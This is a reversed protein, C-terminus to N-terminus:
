QAKQKATKLQCAALDRPVGLKAKVRNLESTEVVAVSFGDAELHDVWGSCCGCSPDKTVTINLAPGAARAWPPLAAAAALAFMARRTFTWTM